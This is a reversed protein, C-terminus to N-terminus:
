GRDWWLHLSSPPKRLVWFGWFAEVKLLSRLCPHISFGVGRYPGCPIAQWMILILCPIIDCARVHHLWPIPCGVLHIWSSFKGDLSLWVDVVCSNWFLSTLAGSSDQPSVDPTFGCWHRARELVTNFDGCIVTPSGPDVHDVVFQFFDGRAPNVSLMSRLM